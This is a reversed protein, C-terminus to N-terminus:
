PTVTANFFAYKGTGTTSGLNKGFSFFGGRYSADTAQVTHGTDVRTVKIVNSALFECKLTAVQPITSGSAVAATPTISTVTLSTASASASASLTAVQGTPLYFQAGSALATPIANVPLSTVAVGSTLGSSLTLPVSLAGTGTTTALTVGV